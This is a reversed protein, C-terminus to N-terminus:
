SEYIKQMLQVDLLEGFKRGVERMTGIHKFAASEHLRISAENPGAIRAIITHLGTKKGENIIEKM